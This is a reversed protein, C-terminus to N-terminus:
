IIVTTYAVVIVIQINIESELYAETMIIQNMRVVNLFLFCGHLCTLTSSYPAMYFWCTDSVKKNFLESYDHFISTSKGWPDIYIILSVVSDYLAHNYWTKNSTILMLIITNHLLFILHIIYIFFVCHMLCFRVEIQM